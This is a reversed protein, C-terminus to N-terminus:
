RDSVDVGSFHGPRFTRPLFTRSRFMRPWFARPQFTRCESYGFRIYKPLTQCKFTLTFTETPERQGDRFVLIRDLKIVGEARRM